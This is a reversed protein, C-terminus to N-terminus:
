RGLTIRKDIRFYLRKTKNILFLLWLFETLLLMAFLWYFSRDYFVILLSLGAIIHMYFLLNAHRKTLFDHMNPLHKMATFDLLCRQQLHTYCLFPLIKILMGQIISTLYFYIFIATVIVPLHYGFVLILLSEPLLYLANIILLSAAGLKWYNITTDPIKRKRKAIVYFVSLAFISHSILIFPIAIHPAFIFLMLLAWISCNLYRTILKPFSPAVHFMPLVQFSVSIIMLSAWGVLGWIAHINTIHTNTNILPLFPKIATNPTLLILGLVLVVSVSIIALRFGVISNNQSFQKILVRTVVAIYLGIALSLLIMALTFLLPLYLIFGLMLSLCGLCLASHSITVVLRPNTIGMGFIVPLLQLLSGMMVMTLFGLTFGHTLALITPSWRSTWLSEGSYLILCACAIVFLPASIFFRYPLDIPPLASFSLSTNNM